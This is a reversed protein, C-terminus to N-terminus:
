LFGAEIRRTEKQCYHYMADEIRQKIEPTNYFNENGCM